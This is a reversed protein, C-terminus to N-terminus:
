RDNANGSAGHGSGGWSGWTRHLGQWRLARLRDRYAGRVGRQRRPGHRGAPWSPRDSQGRVAMTPRGARSGGRARPPPVTMVSKAEKDDRARALAMRSLCNDLTAAVLAAMSRKRAQWSSVLQGMASSAWSASDAALAASAAMASARVVPGSAP